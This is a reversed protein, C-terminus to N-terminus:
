LKYITKIISTDEYKTADILIYMKHAANDNQMAYFYLRTKELMSAYSNYFRLRSIVKIDLESESRNYLGFNWICQFNTVVDHFLAKGLFIHAISHVFLM